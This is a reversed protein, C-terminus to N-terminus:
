AERDRELAEADVDVDRELALEDIAARLEDFRHEAELIMWWAFVAGLAALSLVSGLRSATNEITITGSAPVARGVNM